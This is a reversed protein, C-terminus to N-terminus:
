CQFFIFDGATNGEKFYIISVTVVMISLTEKSKLQADYLTFSSVGIKLVDTNFFLLFVQFKLFQM